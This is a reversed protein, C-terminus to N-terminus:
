TNPRSVSTLTADVPQGAARAALTADDALLKRLCLFLDIGINPSSALLARPFGESDIQEFGPISRVEAVDELKAFAMSWHSFSRSEIRGECITEISHHRPDKRITEYLSKVHGPPGELLQVFERDHYLLMGTIGLGLNKARAHELLRNLARSSQPVTTRSTYLLEHM